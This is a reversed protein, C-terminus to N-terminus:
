IENKKNGKLFEIIQNINIRLFVINKMDIKHNVKCKLFVFAGIIYSANRENSILNM